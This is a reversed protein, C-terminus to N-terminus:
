NNIRGLGLEKEMNHIDRAIEVLESETLKRNNKSNECIRLINEVRSAIDKNYASEIRLVIQGSGVDSAFGFKRCIEQKFSNCLIGAALGSAGSKKYMMAVAEVFEYGPLLSDSNPLKRVAGFRRGRSYCLILGAAALIILCIKVQSSIYSLFPRSKIIGHHYEDFLILGNRDTNKDIISLINVANKYNRMGKNTIADRSSFSYVRGKAVNRDSGFMAPVKSLGDSFFLVTGGNQIWEKLAWCEEDDIKIVPQVVIILKANKPITDYGKYLRGTNYGLRGLLTYFAKVGKSDANFTTSIKNEKNHSPSYVFFTGVLLILFMVILVKSDKSIKM